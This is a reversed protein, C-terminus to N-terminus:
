GTLTEKRASCSSRRRAATRTDSSVSAEFLLNISTRRPFGGHVITIHPRAQAAAMGAVSAALLGAM